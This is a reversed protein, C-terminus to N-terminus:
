GNSKFIKSFFSKQKHEEEKRDSMKNKIDQLKSDFEQFHEELLLIHQKPQQQEKQLIQFNQVLTLLTAIQNDKEDMQSDKKNLQGNKEELQSDKKDLQNTLTEIIYKYSNITDDLPKIEHRERPNEATSDVTTESDYNLDVKNHLSNNLLKLLTDDIMTQGSQTVTMTNFPKLKIKNYITVKSTKLKNSAEGVTYYMVTHRM